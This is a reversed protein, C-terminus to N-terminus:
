NLFLDCSDNQNLNNGNERIPLALLYNTSNGFYRMMDQIPIIMTNFTFNEKRFLPHHKCAIDFIKFTQITLWDEVSQHPELFRQELACIM